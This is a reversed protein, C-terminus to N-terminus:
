QGTGRADARYCRVAQRCRWRAIALARRIRETARWAECEAASAFFHNRRVVINSTCSIRIGLM